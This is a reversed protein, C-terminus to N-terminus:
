PGLAGMPKSLDRYVAPDSLNVKESRYDALVWPMVPYQSLDKFSRGGLVNLHMLYELNSIERNAWRKTMGDKDILKKPDLTKAEYMLNSCRSKRLRILKHALTEAEGNM